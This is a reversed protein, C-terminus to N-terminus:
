ASDGQCQSTRNICCEPFMEFFLNKNRPDVWFDGDVGLLGHWVKAPIHGKEMLTKERSMGNENHLQARRDSMFALFARYEHPFQDKWSDMVWELLKRVDQRAVLVDTM